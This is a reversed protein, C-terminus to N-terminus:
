GRFLISTNALDRRARFLRRREDSREALLFSRCAPIEIKETVTELATPDALVFRGQSKSNPDLPLFRLPKRTTADIRLTLPSLAGWLAVRQKEFDGM